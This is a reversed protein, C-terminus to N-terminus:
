KRHEMDKARVWTDGYAPNTFKILYKHSAYRTIKGKLKGSSTIVTVKDGVKFSVQTTKQPAVTQKKQTDNNTSSTSTGDDTRPELQTEPKWYGRGNPDGEAKVYYRTIAGNDRKEVVYPFKGNSFIDYVKDGPKYEHVVRVSLDPKEDSCNANFNKYSEMEEPTLAHFDIERLKCTGDEYNGRFDLLFKKKKCFFRVHKETLETTAPYKCHAIRYAKLHDKEFIYDMWKKTDDTIAKSNKRFCKKSLGKYIYAKIEDPTKTMMINHYFYAMQKQSQFNPIDDVKVLSALIEEAQKEIITQEITKIKKTEEYSLEKESIVVPESNHAKSTHGIKDWPKKFGDSTMNIKFKHKIVSLKNDHIEKLTVFAEFEVSSITYYKWKPDEPLAIDVLEVTNNYHYNLFDSMNKNAAKKIEAVTPNEVGEFIESGFLEKDYVYKGGAKEYRLAGDYIVTVGPYKKSKRRTVFDQQFYYHWSGNDYVKDYGSGLLKVSTYNQGSKIKAIMASKSPQAYAFVTISIFLLILNLKKM